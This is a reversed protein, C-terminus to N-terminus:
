LLPYIKYNNSADVRVSIDFEQSNEMIYDHLFDDDFALLGSLKRAIFIDLTIPRELVAFEMTLYFHLVSERASENDLNCKQLAEVLIRQEILTLENYVRTYFEFPNKRIIGINNELFKKVTNIM